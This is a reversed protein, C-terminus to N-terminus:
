ALVGRGNLIRVAGALFASRLSRDPLRAALDRLMAEAQALTRDAVALRGQDRYAHALLAALEWQEGLLGIQTALAQAEELHAVAGATEGDWRALAAQARLFPIRFRRSAGAQAEFRLVDARALAVDGGRLLAATLTHYSLDAPELAHRAEVAQLAHAHARAWDEALVSAACLRANAHYHLMSLPLRRSLHLMEEGTQRAGDGQRLALRADALADLAWFLLYPSELARLRAVGHESVRLAEGYEGLEVLVWVLGVSFRGENYGFAVAMAHDEAGPQAQRIALAALAAERGVQPEGTFMRALALMHLIDAQIALNYLRHSPSIGTIMRPAAHLDPPSQADLVAALSRAEEAVEAVRAWDGVTGAVYGLAHLSAVVLHPQGLERALVLAHEAHQRADMAALPDAQAIDVLHTVIEVQARRDAHAEAVRLAEELLGRATAIDGARAALMALHSVASIEARALHQQQALARLAQYTAGAQVPERALEQARGLRLYLGALNEATMAAVGEPAAAATLARAREYHGLADRVDLLALAADGAAVSYSVGAALLGAALAHRALEAAQAGVGELVALARRHYLRRRTEGAERYVAAQVLDHVFACGGEQREQLLLWRVLAELARLGAREEVAAVQIACEASFRGGLVAAATLVEAETEDLRALREGILARVGDPLVAELRQLREPRALDLEWDGGAAPRLGLAGESLLAWLTQVMFFPHGQTQRALWEGFATVQQERIGGALLAVWEQVEGATLAALSLRTAPAERALSGLWQALARNTGVDEARVALVVLARVGGEAWRRALYALLDRTSLDAWQLDDVLLVLPAREALAVGLRTVAEFLWRQGLAPDASAAPLDPYRTHLEPLLRALEALWLEELLDEPANERELRGRLAQALPGYPLGAAEGARGYLIDAGRQRAWTLLVEALRTKGIGAEGELIVVRAQAAQAHDYAQRLEAIERERGVLPLEAPLAM